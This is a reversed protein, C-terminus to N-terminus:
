FRSPTVDEAHSPSRRVSLNVTPCTLMTAIGRRREIAFSGTVRVIVPWSTASFIAFFHAVEARIRTGRWQIPLRTRAIRSSGHGRLSSPSPAVSTSSMSFTARRNPSAPLGWAGRLPCGCPTRDSWRSGCEAFHFHAIGSNQRVGTVGEIGDRRWPDTPGAAHGGGSGSGPAKPGLAQWGGRPRDPHGLLTPRPSDRGSDGESSVPVERGLEIDGRWVGPPPLKPAKGPAIGRASPVSAPSGGANHSM